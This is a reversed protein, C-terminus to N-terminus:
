HVEKWIGFALLALGLFFFVLEMWWISRRTLWVSRLTRASQMAHPRLWEDTEELVAEQAAEASAEETRRIHFRDHWLSFAMGICLVLGVMTM